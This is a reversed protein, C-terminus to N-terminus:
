WEECGHGNGAEIMSPKVACASSAFIVNPDIKGEAILIGWSPQPPQTGLGLYGDFDYGGAFLAGLQDWNLILRVTVVVGGAALLAHALTRRSAAAVRAPAPPPVAPM